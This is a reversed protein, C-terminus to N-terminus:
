FVSGVRFSFVGSPNRESFGYDFRLAPLAVGAFGLNLQVGAGVSAALPSANPDADQLSPVYGLDVFVIGVVTETAFTDFGFDYRYEVSSTIYTRTPDFDTDRYGRIETAPNQVNGVRFRRNEPYAGGFQAGVNLRAAFVHNRDELGDVVDALALYTRVGAQTQTYSYSMPTASDPSAMDNGWGYGFSVNAAVGERPFADSDRNDFGLGASLFANLGGQPLFVLADTEPLSCSSPNTVVDAEVVCAEQQPELAYADFTARGSLVLETFPLVRRGVSFSAGTSRVLYEGVRVQNEEVSADLGPYAVTFRGDASLPQNIDVRTFLAVSISTPVERFDLFDLDLWPVAYRAGAGFQLGLDSNLVSLEASVNHALGWLNSEAYSVSGSLGTATSFQAGPQLLGTANSRLLVEVIVTGPEGSPVLVRNVPTVVGLRAVQRLGSDLARLDVVSGVDPLYRTIVREQTRGTDGDYVLAYGAITLETIRQVYVGDRYEFAPRGEIVVGLTDYAARIRRFDEEALLSTFTDGVVLSFVGLLAENSLRTNGEILVERVPGATDPQGVVFRVRVAGSATALTEIRVDASRGVALARVDELLRDYNYLDGVALSLGSADIGLAVTDFAAIRLERFRVTLLGNELTSREIDVGSQRLGSEGYRDGIQDVLARYIPFSFTGEARLRAALAQLEADDFVASPEFVVERLPTAEEITYRVRVPTRGNTRDADPAQLLELTVDVDYPLGVSRFIARLTGIAREARLTNLTRGTDLLHETVIADRLQDNDLLLSGIVEVAAVPPNERVRIILIPGAGRNEVAVSVEEFTGITYVRNREAELDIRAADSGVRAAIITRVIDAYQTTGEVRVEIIPGLATPVGGQASAVGFLLLATLLLRHRLM